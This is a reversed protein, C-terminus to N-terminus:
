TPGPRPLTSPRPSAPTHPRAVPRSHVYWEPHASPTPSAWPRTATRNQERSHLTVLIIPRVMHQRTNNRLAPTAPRITLLARGAPAQSRQAHGCPDTLNPRQAQLSRPEKIEVRRTTGLFYDLSSGHGREPLQMSSGAARTELDSLRSRAQGPHRNNRSFGPTRTSDLSPFKRHRRSTRGWPDSPFGSRDSRTGVSLETAYRVWGPRHRTSNHKSDWSEVSGHQRLCDMPTRKRPLMPSMIGGRARRPSNRPHGSVPSIRTSVHVSSAIARRRTSAM